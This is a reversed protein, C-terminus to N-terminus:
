DNDVVIKVDDDTTETAMVVKPNGTAKTGTGAKAPAPKTAPKAATAATAPKTASPKTTTAAAAPKTAPTATAPKTATAVKTNTKKAPVPPEVPTEDVQEADDVTDDVDETADVENSDETTAAEGEKKVREKVPRTNGGNTFNGTKINFVEKLINKAENVNISFICNTEGNDMKSSFIENEYLLKTAEEKNKDIQIHCYRVYHGYTEKLQTYNLNDVFFDIKINGARILGNHVIVVFNSM